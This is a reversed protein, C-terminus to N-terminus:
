LEPNNEISSYPSKFVSILNSGECTGYFSTKMHVLKGSALTGITSWEVNNNNLRENDIM